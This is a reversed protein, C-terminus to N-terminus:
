KKPGERGLMEEILVRSFDWTTDYGTGRSTHIIASQRIFECYFLIRALCSYEIPIPPPKKDGKKWLIKGTISDVYTRLYTEVLIRELINVAINIVEWVDDNVEGHKVILRHILSVKEELWEIIAPHLIKRNRKHRDVEELRDEVM